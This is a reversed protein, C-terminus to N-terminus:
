KKANEPVCSHRTQTNKLGKFTVIQANKPGKNYVRVKIPELNIVRTTKM